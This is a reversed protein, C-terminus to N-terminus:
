PILPEITTNKLQVVIVSINDKSGKAMALEALLAAAEAPSKTTEGILTRRTHGALCKEVIECTGVNSVADWLSDTAIIIFDDLESRQIVIVEPESIMYTKLAHDGISRTAKLVGQVRLGNVEIVKGGADEVRRREDPRDPKHDWSLPVVEGNRFLVARSAGCNAVVICDRHLVVVLATSGVTRLRAGFAFPPRSFEYDSGGTSSEELDLLEGNVEDDMKKFCDRMLIKWDVTQGRLREIEEGVFKHLQDRCASSVMTGGHGDYAGFFDHTAPFDSPAVTLTDEMVRRRGMVSISGHSVCNVGRAKNGAEVIDEGTLPIGAPRTIEGDLRRFPTTSSSSSSSSATKSKDGAETMKWSNASSPNNLERGTGGGHVAVCYKSSRTATMHPRTILLKQRRIALRKRRAATTEKKSLFIDDAANKTAPSLM